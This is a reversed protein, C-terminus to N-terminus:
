ITITSWTLIPAENVLITPQLTHGKRERAFLKKAIKHLNEFVLPYLKAEWNSDNIDNLIRTVKSKNM